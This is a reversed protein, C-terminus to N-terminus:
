NVILKVSDFISWDEWQDDEHQWRHKREDETGDQYKGDIEKPDFALTWRFMKGINLGVENYFDFWLSHEDEYPAEDYYIAALANLAGTVQFVKSLENQLLQEGGCDHDFCFNALDFLTKDITCEVDFDFYINYFLGALDILWVFDFNTTIDTIYYLQKVTEKSFCKGPLPWNYDKYLGRHYGQLFGRLKQVDLDLVWMQELEMIQDATLPEGYGEDGPKGYIFREKEMSDYM